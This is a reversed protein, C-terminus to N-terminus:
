GQKNVEKGKEQENGCQTDGTEREGGCGSWERGVEVQRGCM